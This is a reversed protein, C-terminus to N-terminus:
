TRSPACPSVRRSTGTLWPTRLAGRLWRVDAATLTACRQLWVLTQRIAVRRFHAHAEKYQLRKRRRMRCYMRWKHFFRDRKGPQLVYKFFRSAKQALLKAEMLQVRLAAKEPNHLLTAVTLPRPRHGHRLLYVAVPM